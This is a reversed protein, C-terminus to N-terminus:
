LWDRRAREEPDDVQSGAWHALILPRQWVEEGAASIIFQTTSHEGVRGRNREIEDPKAERFSM